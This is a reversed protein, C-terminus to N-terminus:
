GVAKKLKLAAAEHFFELDKPNSAPTGAEIYDVGFEDLIRLIALKDQLSFSMGEGQAGDRLISDLISIKRHEMM